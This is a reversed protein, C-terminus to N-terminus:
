SSKDSSYIKGLHQEFEKLSAVTLAKRRLDRLFTIEELSSIAAFLRKPVKNFRIHLIDLVAERAEQELGQELGQEIGKEIGQQIYYEAITPMKEAGERLANEFEQKVQVQDEAKITQYLYLLM